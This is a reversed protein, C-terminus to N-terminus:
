FTIKVTMVIFDQSGTTKLSNISFYSSDIIANKIEDRDTSIIELISKNGNKFFVFCKIFNRLEMM